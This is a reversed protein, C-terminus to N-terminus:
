HPQHKFNTVQLCCSRSGDRTSADQKYVRRIEAPVRSHFVVCTKRIHVIYAHIKADVFNRTSSTDTVKSM